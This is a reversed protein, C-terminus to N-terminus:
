KRKNYKDWLEWVNGDVNFDLIIDSEEGNLFRRTGEHYLKDLGFSVRNQSIPITKDFVWGVVQGEKTPEIGLMAYVDNLFLIGNTILKNTAFQECANLFMFNATADRTYGKCTKDYVRAYMSYDNIEYEDVIEAVVKEKGKEDTIVTEINKAKINYRLENDMEQGLREVVRSRYEKFGRDLTAYAAALAINRRKLVTHSSILSTISLAEIVVTKFYLKGMELAFQSYAVTIDKKYDQETYEVTLEGKDALEKCEKVEDISKKSSEIIDAAKTSAKCGEVLGYISLGIGMALLIEPSNKKLRFGVGHMTRMASTKLSNLNTNM